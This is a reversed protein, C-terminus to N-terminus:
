LKVRIENLRKGDKGYASIDMYWQSQEQGLDIRVFHSSSGTLMQPTCKVSLGTGAYDITTAKGWDYRDPRDNIFPLPAYVGSAVVHVLRVESGASLAMESVSSFHPDGSLWVVCKVHHSSLIEHLEKLFGPYGLLKDYKEALAPYQALESPVPGLPSGSVIFLPRGDEIHRANDTLWTKFMDRQHKKMVASADARSKNLRESRTDFVFFPYGASDFPYWLPTTRHSRYPSTVEDHHMQYNWAERCAIKFEDRAQRSSFDGKWDNILEHDDVAFYTPIQTYLEHANEGKKSYASGFARRYRSRYREDLDHPDFLDATADAYIQDGMLLLHDVGRQQDHDKTHQKMAEHIRGSIKQEFASGPYQCSGLLFSLRDDAGQNQVLRKFWSSETWNIALPYKAEVDRECLSTVHVFIEDPVKSEPLLIDGLWFDSQGLPDRDSQCLPDRDSKCPNRSWFCQLENGDKDEIRLRTGEYNPNTACEAWVRVMYGQAVKRPRSIIPGVRPKVKPNAHQRPDPKDCEAESEGRLSALFDTVHPFVEKNAEKAFLVDMHGYGKIEKFWVGRETYKREDTREKWEDRELEPVRSQALMYASLHSSEPDFVENDSGHLFLTPFKWHNEINEKRLYSEYGERTTLRKRMISYYIHRFLEVTGPAVLTALQRHTRPDLKKHNWEVGYFLTMRNCATRSYADGVDDKIHRRREEGEWFISSALRDFVTELFTPKNHPIPDFHKFAIQDRVASVMNARLRNAESAVLWPTVAHLTASAIYSDQGNRQLQGSLLSMAFSGSGICHAFINVKKGTTEYVSKVAWPIDIAAIQDMSADQEAVEQLGGSLRHDLLWVDYGEGLLHQVWNTDITETWFVRSSHALGHILLIPELEKAASANEPTYRTLRLPKGKVKPLSVPGYYMQCVAKKPSCRDPYRMTAPPAELRAQNSARKEPFRKYAPAAFTWFHTQLLSRLFLMAMGGMAAYTTPMDPSQKVQYPALGKFMNILDVRLNCSAKCPKNGPASLTVQMPINILGKWLNAYKLTYRLRKTGRFHLQSGDHLECSFDYDLTRYDTLSKAVRWYGKKSGLLSKVPHEKFRVWLEDWRFRIFCLVAAWARWWRQLKCGPRDLALLRVHGKAELLAEGLHQDPVTKDKADGMPNAYVRLVSRMPKSPDALWSFADPNPTEADPDDTEVEVVVGYDQLLKTLQQQKDSAGAGAIAAAIKRKAADDGDLKGMTRECFVLEVQRNAPDAMAFGQATPPRKWSEDAIQPVQRDAGVAPTMLDTLYHALAAITLMPNVGLPKPIIAGDLVYLNNYVATGESSSFVQGKHNVVGRGADDAMACGGLPHVTIAHGGLLNAGEAVGSMDDPFFKWQAGPLYYGGDFGDGEGKDKKEARKLEEHLGQYFDNERAHWTPTVHDGKLELEGDGEDLGMCLLTQCHDLLDDSVSIPDAEAHDRHWATPEDDSWRRFMAQTTIMEGWIRVMPYPIAGEEVTRLKDNRGASQAYGVITPGVRQEAKDVDGAVSPTVAVGQVKNRQGYGFALADGNTSFRSGLQNSLSLKNDRSRQLIETSGLTGAALIVRRARVEFTTEPSTTLHVDVLWEEGEKALASVTAGTYIDVGLDRALPWANMALHGKAGINCGSVCNGCDNCAPQQVGVANAREEFSVTLPAPRCTKGLSKALTDVARYKPLSHHEPHPKAGLLQEVYDYSASLQEPWSANDDPPTPWNALVDREPRLAVNANVLSTGGLGSGTVVSVGDGVRIDWLADANGIRKGNRHLSLYGPSDGIAKPFDGPVYEQGREFVWISEDIRHQKNNSALTTAALAAGYGSGIILTDTSLQKKKNKENIQGKDSLLQAVPISLWYSM